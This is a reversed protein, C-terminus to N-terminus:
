NNNESPDWQAIVDEDCYVQMKAWQQPFFHRMGSSSFLYKM